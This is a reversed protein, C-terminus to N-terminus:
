GEARNMVTLLILGIVFIKCYDMQFSSLYCDKLLIMSYHIPNVQSIEEFHMEDCMVPNIKNWKPLEIMKQVIQRKKSYGDLFSWDM